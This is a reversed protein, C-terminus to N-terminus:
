RPWYKKSAEYIAHTWAGDPPKSIISIPSSLLVAVAREYDAPSLYGLPNSSDTILKSVEPKDHVFNKKTQKRNNGKENKINEQKRKKRPTCVSKSRRM